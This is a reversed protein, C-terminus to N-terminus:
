LSKYYITIFCYLAVDNKFNTKDSVPEGPGLPTGPSEPGSPHGPEGPNLPLAPAGPLAPIGPAGPYGPTLPKGPGLPYGPCPPSRTCLLGLKNDEYNYVCSDADLSKKKKFIQGTSVWISHFLAAVQTVYQVLLM